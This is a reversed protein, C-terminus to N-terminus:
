KQKWNGNKDFFGYGKLRKILLNRDVEEKIEKSVKLKEPLEVKIKAKM